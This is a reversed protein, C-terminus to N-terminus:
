IIYKVSWLLYEYQDLLIITRYEICRDKYTWPLLCIPRKLYENCVGYCDSGNCQDFLLITWKYKIYRNIYAWPLVCIPRKLHENCVMISVGLIVLVHVIIFAFSLWPYLIFFEGVFQNIATIQTMVLNAIASGQLWFYSITTVTLFPRLIFTM